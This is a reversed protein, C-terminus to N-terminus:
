LGYLARLEAALEERSVTATGRKRVKIGGAANALRVADGVAVGSALAVACTAAVTDGAGTVDAIEDRRTIPVFLPREGPTFLAMGRSGRTMLAHRSGTTALLREGAAEAEAETELPMGTLERAEEENPTCLTFDRFALLRHRSDVIKVIPFPALIRNVEIATAASLLGCQYDSVLAADLTPGAAVLRELIAASAAASVPRDGGRDIRIVQQKTTSSGGSLIRTKVCTEIGPDVAAAALDIGAEAMAARLERGAADDGTAGFSLPRGGLAAVNRAANGAGGPLISRSQYRLILVPAERSIRETTGYVFEDAILDGVVAVRVPRFRSVADLLRLGETRDITM